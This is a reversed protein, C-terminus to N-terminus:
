SFVDSFADRLAVALDVKLCLVLPNLPNDRSTTTRGRRGNFTTWIHSRSSPANIARSTDGKNPPYDNEYWAVTNDASSESLVDTDGEGDVDTAFVSFASGADTVINRRTFTQSDNNQFWAITDDDPAHWRSPM